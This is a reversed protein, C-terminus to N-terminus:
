QRAREAESRYTPETRAGENLVAAYAHVLARQYGADVQQRVAPSDSLSLSGKVALQWALAEIFEPDFVSPNTIRATFRLVAQAEHTLIVRGGSEDWAIEYPIVPRDQGDARVINRARLCDTPYRYRYGWDSPPTGLDALALRKTAFPWLVAEALTTEVCFPFLFSLVIAAKSNEDPSQIQESTGLYYLALNMIEVQSAM